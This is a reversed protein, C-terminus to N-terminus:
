PKDCKHPIRMIIHEDDDYLGFSTWYQVYVEGLNALCVPGTGGADM